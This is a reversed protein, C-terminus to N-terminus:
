QKAERLEPVLAKLEDLVWSEVWLRYTDAADKHTYGHSGFNASFHPGRELRALLARARERRTNGVKPM